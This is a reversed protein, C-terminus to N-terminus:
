RNKSEVLTPKNTETDKKELRLQYTKSEWLHM